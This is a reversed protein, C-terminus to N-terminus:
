AALEAPRVQDSVEGGVGIAERGLLLEALLPSSIARRSNQAQSAKWASPSRCRRFRSTAGSLRSSFASSRRPEFPLRWLRVQPKELFRSLTQGASQVKMSTSPTSGVLLEASRASRPGTMWRLSESPLWDFGPSRVM